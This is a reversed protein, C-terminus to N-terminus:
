QSAPLFAHPPVLEFDGRDPSKWELRMGLPANVAHQYSADFRYRGATLRVNQEATQSHSIQGISLSVQDGIQVEGTGRRATLRFGYLGGRDVSLEGEWNVSLQNSNLIARVTQEGSIIRETVCPVSQKSEVTENWSYTAQLGMPVSVIPSQLIQAMWLKTAGGGIDEVPGIGDPYFDSIVVPVDPHNYIVFGEWGNLDDILQTLDGVPNGRLRWRQWEYDSRSYLKSGKPLIIKFESDPRNEMAHVIQMTKDIWSRQVVPDNVTARIDLVNLVIVSAALIVISGSVTRQWWPKGSIRILWDVFLGAAVPFFITGSYFRHHQFFIPLLSGLILQSGFTLLLIKSLLRGRPLCAILFGLCGLCLTIRDLYPSQPRGLPSVSKSSNSDGVGWMKIVRPMNEKVKDIWFGANRDNQVAVSSRKLPFTIVRSGDISLLQPFQTVTYTSVFFLWPILFARFSISRLPSRTKELLKPFAFGIPLFLVLCGILFACWRVAFYAYSLYGVVVGLLVASFRDQKKVLHVYAGWLIPIFFIDFFNWSGIRSGFVHWRCVAVLVATFLAARETVITRMMLYVLPVTLVGLLIFPLRLAFPYLGFTKFFPITITNALVFQLSPNNGTMVDYNRLGMQAEEFGTWPAFNDVPPLRDLYLLHFVVSVGFVIWFTRGLQFRPRDLLFAGLLMFGCFWMTYVLRLQIASPTELGRHVTLVAVALAAAVCAWGLVHCLRTNLLDAARHTYSLILFCGAAILILAITGGWLRLRLGSQNLPVSPTAIPKIELPTSNTQASSAMERFRADIGLALWGATKPYLCISSLSNTSSFREHIGKEPHYSLVREKDTDAILLEGSPFLLLDKPHNMQTLQNTIEGARNVAIVRHNDFDCIWTTGGPDRVADEPGKLGRAYEWVTQGDATLELVRGGRKETVLLNGNGLREAEVPGNLGEHLIEPEDMGAGVSAIVGQHPICITYRGSGAPDVDQISHKTQYIWRTQSGDWELIGKHEVAIVFRGDETLDIDNPTGFGALYSTILGEEDVIIIQPESPRPTIDASFTKNAAFLCLILIVPLLGTFFRRNALFM